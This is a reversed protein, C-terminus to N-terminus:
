FFSELGCLVEQEEWLIDVLLVLAGATKTSAEVSRPM